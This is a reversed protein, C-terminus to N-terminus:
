QLAWNGQLPLLAFKPWRPDHALGSAYFAGGQSVACAPVQSTQVQMADVELVIPDSYALTTQVLEGSTM